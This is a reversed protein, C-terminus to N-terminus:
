SFAKTMRFGVHLRPSTGPLQSGDLFQGREGGVDLSKYRDVLVLCVRQAPWSGVHGSPAEPAASDAAKHCKLCQLESSSTSRKQNFLKLKNQHAQHEDHEDCPWLTVKPGLFSTPPRDLQGVRSPSSVCSTFDFHTLSQPSGASTKVSSSLSPDAHLLRCSIFCLSVMNVINVPM